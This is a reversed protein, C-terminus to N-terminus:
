RGDEEHTWQDQLLVWRDMKMLWLHIFERTLEDRSMSEYDENEFQELTAQLQGLDKTYLDNFYLLVAELDGEVEEMWRLGLRDTADADSLQPLQSELRAGLEHAIRDMAADLRQSGHELVNARLIELEHLAAKEVAPLALELKEMALEGYVPVTENVLQRLEPELRPVLRAAEEQLPGEFNEPAYMATAKNYVAGIFGILVLVLVVTLGRSVQMMKKLRARAAAHESRIERSGPERAPGSM